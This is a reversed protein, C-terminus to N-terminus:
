WFFILSFANLTLKFDVNLFSSFHTTFISVKGVKEIRILEVLGFRKSGCGSIVTKVIWM